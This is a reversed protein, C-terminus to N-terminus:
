ILTLSEANRFTSDAVQGVPQGRLEAVARVVLVLNAPENPKECGVPRFDPADTEILLRDEPIAAAAAHVRKAEPKTVNGCISFWCNLETLEPILEVAGSFAHIIKKPMPHERLIELLRGWARVCHVAVPRGLEAALELHAVFCEEQEARNKFQKQFDLGCEGVGASPHERLLKGLAQVDSKWDDSVFWPHIGIMPLLSLRCGKSQELAQFVLPWDHPSTGCCIVQEVGAAVAREMVHGLTPFLSDDTLHCHSDFLTM